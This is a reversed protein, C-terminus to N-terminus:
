GEYKDLIRRIVDEQRSTLPVHAPRKHLVSEIFEAEWATVTVMDDEDVDALRGLLRDNLFYDSFEGM